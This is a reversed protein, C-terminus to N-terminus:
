GEKFALELLEEAVPASKIRILNDYIDIKGLLNMGGHRVLEEDILAFCENVEDKLVVHMGAKKMDSIMSYYYAANGYAIEEPVTTIITIQCGAEM